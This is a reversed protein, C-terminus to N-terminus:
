SIVQVSILAFSGLQKMVRTQEWADLHRPLGTVPENQSDM